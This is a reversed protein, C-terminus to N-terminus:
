QRRWRDWAILHTLKDRSGMKRKASQVHAQVTRESLCLRDAAIKHMGYEIVADLAKAECQTLGWPNLGRAAAQDHRASMRVVGM